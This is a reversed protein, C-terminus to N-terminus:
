PSRVRAGTPRGRALLSRLADLDVPEVLLDYHRVGGPLAVRVTRRAGRGTELVRRKLEILEAGCEDPLLELDTRGINHEPFAPDQPYVWTYRLDLDQEFVTVAGSALALRFRRESERLAEETAKRATIDTVIAIWGDPVGDAGPGDRLAAANGQLWTVRGGPTRFRYESTFERGSAAAEYWERSVRDRDEPHLARVWGTGWAQEAAM